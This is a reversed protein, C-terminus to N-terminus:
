LSSALPFATGSLWTDYQVTNERWFTCRNEKQEITENSNCNCNRFYKPVNRAVLPALLHLVLRGLFEQKVTFIRLHSGQEKTQFNISQTQRSRFIFEFIRLHSESYQTQFILDHTAAIQVFILEYTNHYSNQLLHKLWKTDLIGFLKRSIRSINTHLATPHVSVM